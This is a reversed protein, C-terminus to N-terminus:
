NIKLFKIGQICDSFKLAYEFFTIKKKHVISWIAGKSFTGRYTQERVGGGIIQGSYLIDIFDIHM